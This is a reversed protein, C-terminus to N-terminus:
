PNKGELKGGGEVGKERPAGNLIGSESKVQVGLPIGLGTGEKELRSYSREPAL